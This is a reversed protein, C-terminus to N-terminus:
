AMLIPLLSHRTCPLQAIMATRVSATWFLRRGEIVSRGCGLFQPEVRGECRYSPLLGYVGLAKVDPDVDVSTDVFPMTETVLETTLAEVSEDANSGHLSFGARGKAKAQASVKFNSRFVARTSAFKSNSSRADKLANVRIMYPTIGFKDGQSAQADKVDNYPPVKPMDMADLDHHWIVVVTNRNHAGGGPEVAQAMQM